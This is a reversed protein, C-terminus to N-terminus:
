EIFGDVFIVTRLRVEFGMARCINPLVFKDFNKRVVVIVLWSSNIHVAGRRGFTGARILLECLEM